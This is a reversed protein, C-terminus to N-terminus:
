RIIWGNRDYKVKPINVDIFFECAERWDSAGLKLYMGKAHNNRGKLRM